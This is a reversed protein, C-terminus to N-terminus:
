NVLEVLLECQKQMRVGCEEQFDGLGRAYHHIPDCRISLQLIEHPGIENSSALMSQAVSLVRECNSTDLNKYKLYDEIHETDIRILEILVLTALRKNRERGVFLEVFSETSYHPLNFISWYKADLSAIKLVYQHAIILAKLNETFKYKSLIWQASKDLFPFDENSIHNYIERYLSFVSKDVRKAVEDEIKNFKETDGVSKFHSLTHFLYTAFYLRRLVVKNSYLNETEDLEVVRSSLSEYYDKGFLFNETFEIIRKDTLFNFMYFKSTLLYM